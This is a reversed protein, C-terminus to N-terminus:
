RLSIVIEDPPPEQKKAKNREAEHALATVNLDNNNALTLIDPDPAATMTSTSPASPAAPAPQVPQSGLPRLTRLHEYPTARSAQRGRLQQALADDSQVPTVAPSGASVPPAVPGSGGTAGPRMFWYSDSQQAPAPQVDRLDNLQDMLHQRHEKASRTIMTDFQQALPSTGADLVDETKAVDFEPVGQPMSNIDLLRDPDAMVPQPMYPNVNKVAWGRSDITSALAKLRSKVETQSFGKTAPLREVRKPATITVMEKVGSQNWVRIRPKFFYRIKALAWVETPQDMGFPIAFFGCFLAPLLFVPLMFAFHRTLALFSLYFFFVAVLAFIFQRLTLPGLIHDEAEIDQILKYTAV